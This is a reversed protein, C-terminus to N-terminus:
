FLILMGGVKFMRERDDEMVECDDCIFEDAFDNDDDCFFLFVIIDEGKCKGLCRGDDKRERGGGGRRVDDVEVVAEDHEEEREKNPLPTVVAFLVVDDKDLEVDDHEDAFFRGGFGRVV